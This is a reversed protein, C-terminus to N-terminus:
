LIRSLVLFSLSVKYADRTYMSYIKQERTPSACARIYARTNRSPYSSLIMRTAREVGVHRSVDRHVYAFDSMSIRRPPLNMTGSGTAAKEIEERQEAPHKVNRRM